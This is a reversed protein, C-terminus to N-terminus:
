RTEDIVELYRERIPHLEGCIMVSWVPHDNVLTELEIIIGVNGPLPGHQGYWSGIEPRARVLDGPKMELSWSDRLELM